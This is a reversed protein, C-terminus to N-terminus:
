VQKHWVGTWEPLRAWGNERIKQALEEGFFFTTKAVADEVSEFQYDTAIVSCSFGWDEELWRYYEALGEHPPAPSTAGTTMTEIIILMGGPRAARAMENLVLTMRQKWDEPYWGIFHGIAWGAIVIDAAGDPYPLRCNDANVLPWVGGVKQRVLAQETLMHYSLDSGVIWSVEDAFLLPIRGTGTGLDLVQKGEFSTIERLKAPLNGDVDEVAVMLHYEEARSAYIKKYHDM